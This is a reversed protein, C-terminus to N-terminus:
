LNWGVSVVNVAFIVAFSTVMVPSVADSLVYLPFAVAVKTVPLADILVTMSPSVTVISVVPAEADKSVLFTPSPFVTVMVPTVNPPM